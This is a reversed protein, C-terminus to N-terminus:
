HQKALGLREVGGIIFGMDTPGATRDVILTPIVVRRKNFVASQPQGSSTSVPNPLRLSM